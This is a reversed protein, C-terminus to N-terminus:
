QRVKMAFRFTILVQGDVHRGFRIVSPLLFLRKGLGTAPIPQVVFEAILEQLVFWKKSSDRFQQQPSDYGCRQSGDVYRWSLVVSPPFSRLATRPVVETM